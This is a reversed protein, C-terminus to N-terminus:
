MEVVGGCDIMRRIVREHLLTFDLLHILVGLFVGVGIVCRRGFAHLLTGRQGRVKRGIDAHDARTEGADVGGDFQGLAPERHDQQLGPSDAPAGAPAVTALQNTTDAMVDATEGLVDAGIAHLVQFVGPGLRHLDHGLADALVADIAVQAPAEAFQGIGRGLEFRELGLLHFQDLGTIGKFGSQDRRLLDTFLYHVGTHVGAAQHVHARPMQMRQVQDKAFRLNGLGKPHLNELLARHQLQDMAARHLDTASTASHTCARQHQGAVRVEFLQFRLEAAFYERCAAVDDGGLRQRFVGSCFQDRVVERQAVLLDAQVVVPERSAPTQQEATGAMVGPAIRRVDAGVHARLHELHERLQGIHADVILPAALDADRGVAEGLNPAQALVRVHEVGLTVGAMAQVHGVPARLQQAFRDMGAVAFAEVHEAGHRM